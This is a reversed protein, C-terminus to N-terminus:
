LKGAMKYLKARLEGHASDIEKYQEKSITGSDLSFKCYYIFDQADEIFTKIKKNFIEFKREKDEPKEPQRAYSQSPDRETLYKNLKM